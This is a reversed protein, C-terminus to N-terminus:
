GIPCWRPRSGGTGQWARGHGATCPLGRVAEFSHAAADGRLRPSVWDMMMHGPGRYGRSRAGLYPQSGGGEQWEAGHVVRVQARRWGQCCRSAEPGKEEARLAGSGERGGAAQDDAPWGAAELAGR